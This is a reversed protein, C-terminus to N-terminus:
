YTYDTMVEMAQNDPFIFGLSALSKNLIKCTSQPNLCNLELIEISRDTPKYQWLTYQKLLFSHHVSLAMNGFASHGQKWLCWAFKQSRFVDKCINIDRSSIGKKRELHIFM